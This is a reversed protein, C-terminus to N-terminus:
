EGKAGGVTIEKVRLIPQGVDTPISGSAAGCMGQARALNKGVMDIQHLIAPGNGILTAGRVPEAIKGNRIIYGENVAFNFDGTGPNVSGGGMSKAYLGYETNAIIEERTHPGEAIFTNTMRSTPAFRYNQRRGSGTSPMNMRRGNLKDIMYSKLIGNEILVKRQTPTGEDDINLSGWANPITGDDIATVLPNAIQEGLKNSFVSLGKSVSSAELGHGCAEHFIVGGFGNDIVVPMKKSPCLGANLMTVAQRAADSAYFNLDLDEIFEFGQHAGPGHSGTQMEHGNSAVARVFLRTYVRTDEVLTGETNAILVHQKKESLGVSSQTISEHYNKIIESVQRMKDVRRSAPVDNLDQQILHQTIINQRTLNIPQTRMEGMLASAIERATKLLNERSSDNTYGYVSNTGQFLRIGIGYDEGRNAKDVKGGIMDIAQSQTQEVYIEAFDAGFSLAEDLVDKILIESLM